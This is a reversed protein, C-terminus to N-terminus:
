PIVTLTKPSNLKTKASDENSYISYDIGDYARAAAYIRKGPPLNTIVVNTVGYAAIIANTYIGSQGGYSVITQTGVPNFADNVWAVTMDASFATFSIFIILLVLPKVTSPLSNDYYKRRISHLKCRLGEGIRLGCDICHLIKKLKQKEQSLKAALDWDKSLHAKILESKNKSLTRM